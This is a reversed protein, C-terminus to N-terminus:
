RLFRGHAGFAPFNPFFPFPVIPKQGLLLSLSTKPRTVPDFLPFM